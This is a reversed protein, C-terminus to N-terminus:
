QSRLARMHAVRREVLARTGIDHRAFLHPGEIAPLAAEVRREADDITPAAAVVGVARSTTTTMSGDPRENVAAYYCSAGAARVRAEDVRVPENARPRAGYGEPVVYKCVTALPRWRLREPSLHGDAMADLVDVYPADLVELVNMAEPDGFRANVEIVRPGDRGVMFQGYMTGVYPRGEARLADVIRQCALKAQELDKADLFPLSGDADSYAGMGGTNPGRDGEYARKHDQVAPMFALRRGDSFAQLSFEEGDLREEVVVQPGGLRTTLVEHAYAVADARSGLHDGMVKVGKGGTLGVPKVVADGLEDVFESVGDISDFLRWRVRGPVDHAELLRRMFAKSWEIEGAARTPSACRVGAKAVADAVGAEIAADMGLVVLDAGWRVAAAAIGVADTEPLFAHDRVLRLLGPNRNRMVALVTGGSRAVASAMAHERAGGGVVVVKM